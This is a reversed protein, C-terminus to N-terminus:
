VRYPIPGSCIWSCMICAWGSSHHYLFQCWVSSSSDNSVVDCSWMIVHNYSGTSDSAFMMPLRALLTFCFTLQWHTYTSLSWELLRYGPSSITVRSWKCSTIFYVFLGTILFVCSM